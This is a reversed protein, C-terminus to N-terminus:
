IRHPTHVLSGSASSFLELDIRTPNLILASIYDLKDSRKLIAPTLGFIIDLSYEETSTALEGNVNLGYAGGKIGSNFKIYKKRVIHKQVMGVIAYLFCVDPDKLIQENDTKWQRLGNAWGSDQVDVLGTAQDFVMLSFYSNTDLQGNLYSLFSVSACLKQDVIISNRLIPEKIKSADEVKVGSIPLPSFEIKADVDKLSQPCIGNKKRVEIVRGLLSYPNAIFANAEIYATQDDVQVKRMLEQASTTKATESVEKNMTDNIHDTSNNSGM